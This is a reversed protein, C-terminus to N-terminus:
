SKWIFLCVLVGKYIDEKHLEFVLRHTNTHPPLLFVVNSVVFYEDNTICVSKLHM